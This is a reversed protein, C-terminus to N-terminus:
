RGVDDVGAWTSPPDSSPFSQRSMEDVLDDWRAAERGATESAPVVRAEGEAAPAEVDKAM